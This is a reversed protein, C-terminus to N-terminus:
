GALIETGDSPIAPEIVVDNPVNAWEALQHAGVDALDGLPADGHAKFWKGLAALFAVGLAGALVGWNVSTFGNTLAPLVGVFAVIAAYAIMEVARLITRQGPTLSVGQAAMKFLNM